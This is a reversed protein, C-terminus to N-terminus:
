KTVEKVYSAWNHLIVECMEVAQLFREEVLEDDNKEYWSLNCATVIINEDFAEMNRYGMNDGFDIKEVYLTRFLKFADEINVIGYDKLFDRGFDEWLLGFASYPVGQENIKHDEQHHDYEGRGVDFVITDEGYEQTVELVRIIKIDKIFHRLFAVSMTDDLHFKGAHTVGIKIKSLDVMTIELINYLIIIWNLIFTILKQLFTHLYQINRFNTRKGIM